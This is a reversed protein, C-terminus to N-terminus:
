ARPVRVLGLVRAARGPVWPHEGGVAAVLDALRALRDRSAHGLAARVQARGVVAVAVARGGPLALRHVCRGAVDPEPADDPRGDARRGTSRAAAMAARVPPYPIPAAVAPWAPGRRCRLSTIPETKPSIRGYATATAMLGIGMTATMRISNETCALAFAGAKRPPQTAPNSATVTITSTSDPIRPMPTPAGGVQTDTSLTTSPMRSSSSPQSFSRFRGGGPVAAGSGRHSWATSWSVGPLDNAIPASSDPTLGLFRMRATPAASTMAWAWSGVPSAAIATSANTTM